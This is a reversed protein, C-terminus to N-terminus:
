SGSGGMRSHTLPIGSASSLTKFDVASGQSRRRLRPEENVKIQPDSISFRGDWLGSHQTLPGASVAMVETPYCVSLEQSSEILLNVIFM